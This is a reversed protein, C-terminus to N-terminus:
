SGKVMRLQHPLTVAIQPKRQFETVLGDVAVYQGEFMKRIKQPDKTGWKEFDRQDIVAKFCNRFDSGFNLIVKNEGKPIFVTEVKGIVLTDRSIMQSLQSLDQSNVAFDSQLDSMEVQLLGPFERPQQLVPPRVQQATNDSLYRDDGALDKHAGALDKHAGALDKHAITDQAEALQGETPQAGSQLAGAISRFFYWGSAVLICTLLTALLTRM